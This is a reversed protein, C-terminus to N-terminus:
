KTAEVLRLLSSNRLDDEFWARILRNIVSERSRNDLRALERMKELLVTPIHVVVPRGKVRVDDRNRKPIGDHANHHLRHHRRCLWRVQLPKTYDDHHAVTRRKKGCVECPQRKLRGDRVAKWVARHARQAGPLLSRSM